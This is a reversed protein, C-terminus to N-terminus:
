FGYLRAPNDVLIRRLVADNGAWQALRHLVAGDDIPTFPEIADRSRQARGGGGGTHPWDSGWLTREPNAAILARAIPAVDGLDPQTSVRHPASLKVYAKGGRVLSLLAEFGPQSVGAAADARGFHDIVLPVPLSELMEQLALIVPLRTYTQLHWGFPAVRRATELLMPGAVAPDHRGGSELVVRAGRVGADHLRRLDADDIAPDIVAVGRSRAPGLEALADLTRRNDTGYPSPHVIVVRELGLRRQLALLDAVGAAGPTYDREGAWPYRDPPGFVHTHCDCAGAPVAFGPRSHHVGLVGGETPPSAPDDPSATSPM